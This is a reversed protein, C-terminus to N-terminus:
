AHRNTLTTVGPQPQSLYKQDLYTIHTTIHLLDSRLHERPRPIARFIFIFDRFRLVSHPLPLPELCPPTTSVSPQSCPPTSPQTPLLYTLRILSPIHVPPHRTPLHSFPCPSRPMCAPPAAHSAGAKPALAVTASLRPECACLQM